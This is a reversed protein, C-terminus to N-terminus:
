EELWEVYLPHSAQGRAGPDDWGPIGQAWAIIASSDAVVVYSPGGIELLPRIEKPATELAGGHVHDWWLEAQNKDERAIRFM